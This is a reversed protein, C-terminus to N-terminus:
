DRWYHDIWPTPRCARHLRSLQWQGSRAQEPKPRGHFVVIRAEAPLRPPRLLNVPCMPMCHRKFSAVWGPPWWQKSQVAHSLFRQENRFRELVGPLEAQLRETVYGMEGAEFRFVSSNGIDPRRALYRRHVHVWDRIICFQQPHVDFFCELAGTILVDLDLFLAPGQMGALGPQLLGLKPWGGFDRASAPLGSDPLPQVEIQPLLGRSDETFCLFRFPISLHARVGNYLRNVYHAGYYTGWKICLVNVKM